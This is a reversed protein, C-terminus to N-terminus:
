AHTLDIHYTLGVKELLNIALRLDIQQSSDDMRGELHKKVLMSANHINRESDIDTKNFNNFSRITENLLSDIRRLSSSPVDGQQRSMEIWIQTHSTRLRHEFDNKLRTQEEDKERKQLQRDKNFYYRALFFGVFGAVSLEYFMTLLNSKDFEDYLFFLITIFFTILLLVVAQQNKDFELFNM